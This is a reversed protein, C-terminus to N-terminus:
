RIREYRVYSLRSCYGNRRTGVAAAKLSANLVDTAEKGRLGASTIFFLAEAAEAASKGTDTAMKKATEGMKDVDAAAVGVLSQIKTMSKDFDVALKLAAGGALSLPLTLKTSLNKGVAQTKAGFAQLKSGAKDLGKTLKSSDAELLIRLKQDAM